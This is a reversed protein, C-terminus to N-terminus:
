DNMDWVVIEGSAGGAACTMGDPSFAVASVPGIEWDFSRSERWQECDWLVVAHEECGLALSRGDPSFSLALLNGAGIPVYNAQAAGGDWFLVEDCFLIALQKGGPRFAIPGPEDGLELEPVDADVHGRHHAFIFAAGGFTVAALLGQDASLALHRVTYGPFRISPLRGKTGVEVRELWRTGGGDTGSAFVLLQGDSSFTAADVCFCYEDSPELHDWQGTRGDWLHLLVPDVFDGVYHQAALRRGDPSLYVDGVEHDPGGFAWEEAASQLDLLETEEGTGVSIWHIAKSTRANNLAEVCVLSKGDPTFMLKLIPGEGARYTRV